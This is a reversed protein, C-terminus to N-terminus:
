NEMLFREADSKLFRVSRKGTPKFVRIRGSKVIQSDLTRTTIRLMKAFESRTIYWPIQNELKDKMYLRKKIEELEDARIAGADALPTLLRTVTQATNKSIM